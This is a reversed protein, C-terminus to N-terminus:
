AAAEHAAATTGFRSGFTTGQSATTQAGPRNGSYVGMIEYICRCIAMTIGAVWRSVRITETQVEVPAARMSKLMRYAAYSAAAIGGIIKSALAM